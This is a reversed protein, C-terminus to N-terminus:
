VELQLIEVWMRVFLIVTFFSNSIESLLYKLECGWSSSSSKEVKFPFKGFNNWSVDERLPHCFSHMAKQLYYVNWSVDERLPHGLSSEIVLCYHINWSVDERLPHRSESSAHGTVSLMEVWMRVFLIVCCNWSHRYYNCYKLECGWSSSSPMPQGVAVLWDCKLECGWSSSSATLSATCFGTSFKLECGWSSSSRLALKSM